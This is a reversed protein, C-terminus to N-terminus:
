SRSRSKDRLMWPTLALMGALLAALFWNVPEDLGAVVLVPLMLGAGALVLVHFARKLAVSPRLREYMGLLIGVMVALLSMVFFWSMWM